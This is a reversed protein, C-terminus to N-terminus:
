YLPELPSSDPSCYHKSVPVSAYAQSFPFGLFTVLVLPELKRILRKNSNSKNKLRFLSTLDSCSLRQGLTQEEADVPLKSSATDWSGAWVQRVLRCKWVMEQRNMPGTCNSFCQDLLGPAPTWQQFSSTFRSSESPVHPWLPELTVEPWWELDKM